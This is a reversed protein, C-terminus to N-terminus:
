FKMAIKRCLPMAFFSVVLSVLELPLFGHLWAPIYAPTFGVALLTMFTNMCLSNLTPNVIGGWVRFALSDPQNGSLKLMLWQGFRPLQFVFNCVNCIVLSQLFTVLYSQWTVVGVNVILGALAMCASMVTNMLPYQFVFAQRRTM